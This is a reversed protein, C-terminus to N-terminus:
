NVKWREFIRRFCKSLFNEQKIAKYVATPTQITLTSAALPIQITNRHSCNAYYESDILSNQLKGSSTLQIVSQCKRFPKENQHMRNTQEFTETKNLTKSQYYHNDLLDSNSYSNRILTNDSQTQLSDADSYQSKTESSITSAM